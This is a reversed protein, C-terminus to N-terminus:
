GDAARRLALIKGLKLENKGGWGAVGHEVDPRVQVYWGWIRKELEQPTIAVLWSQFLIEITQLLMGLNQAKEAAKAVATPKKGSATSPPSDFSKFLYARASQPTHIPINATTASQAKLVNITETKSKKLAELDLGWLAPEEQQAEDVEDEQKVAAPDDETKVGAESEVPQDTKAEYGWRRLVRIRKGMVEVEALGEGWGEAEASDKEIGLSVARARSTLSVYAQALSLRSSLPQEPMTYKLLTVTMALVLPARNTFLVKEQLEEEAAAGDPLALGAELEEPTQEAKVEFLSAEGRKRKKSPSEAGHADEGAARKKVVRKAAALLQKRQKEDEIIPLLDAPKAKAIQEPTSLSSKQLLPIKSLALSLPLKAEQILFRLLDQLASSASM